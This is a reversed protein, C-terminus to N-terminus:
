QELYPLLAFFFSYNRNAPSHGEFHDLDPLRDGNAGAYNFVALGIQRLNNSCRARAAAERAKQVASLLLGILVAIIALVVLLEVLTFGPCPTRAQRAM